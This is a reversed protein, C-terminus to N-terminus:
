SKKFQCFENNSTPREINPTRHEDTEKEILSAAKQSAAPSFGSFTM